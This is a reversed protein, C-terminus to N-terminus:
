YIPIYIGFDSTDFANPYYQIDLVNKLGDIIVEAVDFRPQLKVIRNSCFHSATKVICRKKAKTIAQLGSSVYDFRRTKVEIFLIYENDCAIIDIEGGRVAYNRYAVEYGMNSVYHCVAVEGVNGIDKAYSIM